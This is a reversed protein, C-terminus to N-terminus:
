IDDRKFFLVDLYDTWKLQIIQRKPQQTKPTKFYLRHNNSVPTEFVNKGWDKAQREVKKSLTNKFLLFSKFNTSNWKVSKKKKKKKKQNSPKLYQQWAWSGTCNYEWPKKQSNQLNM